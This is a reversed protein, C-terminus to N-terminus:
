YVTITQFGRIIILAWSMAEYVVPEIFRLDIQFSEPESYAEYDRQDHITYSM